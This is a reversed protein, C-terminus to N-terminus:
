APVAPPRRAAFGTAEELAKAARLLAGDAGQRTVLQVGVPMGDADFGAPLSLTPCGTVTIRWCSAMWDIYNSLQVGAVETPFEVEVPFPSLQTVPCALVDYGRDFFDVTEHWLAALQAYATAVEAASVAEGRRIEDRITAKIEDMRDHFRATPGNAINWARLVRFCDSALALEPEDDVVDWGLDVMAQRTATLVDRQSSEVPLGLDPSWAVRLPRDPVAVPLDARFPRHM